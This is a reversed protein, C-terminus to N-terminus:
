AGSLLGKFLTDLHKRIIMIDYKELVDEYANRTIRSRLDADNMCILIRESLKEPNAPEAIVANYGDVLIEGLGGVPTAVIPTKAAMAELIVNPMGETHSPLVLVATRKLAEMKQQENAWGHVHVLRSLGKGRVYARLPEIEKTGYFDAEIEEGRRVIHGIADVLDYVGKGRNYWGLYLVKKGDRAIDPVCSIERVDVPNPLVLVDSAPFLNLIDSRAKHTLVIIFSVRNIVAFAVRKCIGGMRSIFVPFFSPHIHLVVKKKLLFSIIMFVSKRYFSNYSATHIYVLRCGRLCEATFRLLGHLFAVLKSEQMGDSTSIYTIHNESFFGSDKWLRVVRSIGGLGDPHPGLMIIRKRVEGMEM